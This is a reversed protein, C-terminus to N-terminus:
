KSKGANEWLKMLDPSLWVSTECMQWHQLDFIKELWSQVDTWWLQLVAPIGEMAVSMYFMFCIVARRRSKSWNTVCSESPKGLICKSPKRCQTVFFSFCGPYSTKRVRCQHKFNSISFNHQSNPKLNHCLSIQNWNRVSRINKWGRHIDRTNIFDRSSM